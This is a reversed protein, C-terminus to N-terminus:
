SLRPLLLRAVDLARGGPEGGQAEWVESLVCSAFGWAAAREPPMGLGDALRELRAPVLDVLREDREGPDPNYLVPGIEYGRDGVLGHPDIALWPERGGRLVNDHHLDGHLVFREDSDACLEGFLRGAREVLDRPLPDDGPYRRLHGAFAAGEAEVAPLGCDPPAPRHLRRMVEVLAATADGDREPVLDRLMTGPEARELLLAGREADYALLRVAGRGGFGELAAAEHALHGPEAPGLKLVAATGDERRVAAVWHYSLVFPEGVDLAWDRAVEKVLRPLGDLWRRGVDGWTNVANRALEDVITWGAM